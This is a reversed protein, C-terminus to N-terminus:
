GISKNIKAIRKEFSSQFFREVVWGNVKRRGFPVQVRSGVKIEDILEEPIAYDYERDLHPVSSEIVVKAFGLPRLSKVSHSARTHSEDNGM